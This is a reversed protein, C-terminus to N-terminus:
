HVGMQQLKSLLDIIWMILSGIVGISIFIGTGIYFIKFGQKIAENNEKLKNEIEVMDDKTAYKNGINIELNRVENQTQKFMESITDYKKMENEDHNKFTDIFTTLKEVVVRVDSNLSSVNANTADLKSYIDKESERLKAGLNNLDNKLDTLETM